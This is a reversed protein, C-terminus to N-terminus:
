FLRLTWMTALVAGIAAIAIYVYKSFTATEDFLTAIGYTLFSAGIVIGCVAHPQTGGRFAIARVLMACVAIAIAVVRVNRASKQRCDCHVSPSDTASM